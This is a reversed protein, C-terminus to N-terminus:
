KAWKEPLCQCLWHCLDITSQHIVLAYDSRYRGRSSGASQMFGDIDVLARTKM